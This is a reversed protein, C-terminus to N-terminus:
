LRPEQSAAEWAAAVRPRLVEGLKRYAASRLHHFDETFLQPRPHGDETEFLFHGPGFEERVIKGRLRM